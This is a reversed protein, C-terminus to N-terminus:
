PPPVTVLRDETPDCVVVGRFRFEQPKANAHLQFGIPASRLLDPQDTFDFVPTGNAACRIRNGRVLVEVLNWEGTKEAPVRLTGRHGPPVIRNRRHADWIGWDHCFMVLPGRFGHRNGGADEIREGLVAVASHMTSHTPSVTQRVEFLLRFDRFSDGSFLYTSSPVPDTNRGVIVGDQVSWYRPDGDWGALDTGNALSRPRESEPLAVVARAVALPLGPRMDPRTHGVEGLWAEHLIQQRAQAKRATEADVRDVLGPDLGFGGLIAQALVRHGAADLHVGDASFAFDPDEKRRAAIFRLVPERLDIVGAVRDRQELVWAAYRAMVETDYHEYVSFWAQPGQDAPLLKGQKRLPEPDFPPPSLLVLPVGAAAVREMIREMGRRFAAFREEHFPHYIGDNMGYCAIVLDPRVRDLARGLREHVDPRPFPHAPESLGTCTESPLGLNILERKPDPPLAADLTSIFWGAHTNSDGLFLVRGSLSPLAPANAAALAAPLALALSLSLSLSVFLPAPKM